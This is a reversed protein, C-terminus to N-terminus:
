AQAWCTLGFGAACAALALTVTAAAYLGAGRGGHTYTQVAFASYTTLGGCFGTGLLAVADADWSLAYFVGLLFSGVVNVLLTGDRQVTGALPIAEGAPTVFIMRVETGSAGALELTMEGDTVTGYGLFTTLDADMVQLQTEDVLPASAWSVASASLVLIAALVRKM